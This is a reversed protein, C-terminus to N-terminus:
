KILKDAAENGIGPIYRDIIDRGLEPVETGSNEDFMM